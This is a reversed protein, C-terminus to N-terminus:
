RSSKIKGGLLAAANVLRRWGLDCKFSPPHPFPYTNLRARIFRTQKVYANARVRYTYTPVGTVSRNGSYVVTGEQKSSSSVYGSKFVKQYLLATEANRLYDGINLFWDVVFSYPTLEWAISLPNLSAWRALKVGTVDKNLVLSIRTRHSGKIPSGALNGYYQFGSTFVTEFNDRSSAQVLLSSADGVRMLETAAGYLDSALPTWGYTWELWKGSGQRTIDRWNASTAYTIAKTSAKLMRYTAGSEALAVSLDLSGRVIENLKSLAANFTVNDVPLSISPEGFTIPGSQSRETWSNPGYEERWLNSGEAYRVSSTTVSYPTPTVFDGDLTAFAVSDRDAAIGSTYSTTGNPNLSSRIVDTRTSTRLFNHPVLM